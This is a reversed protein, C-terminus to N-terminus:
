SYKPCNTGLVEKTLPNIHLKRDGKKYDDAWSTFMGCKYKCPTFKKYTRGEHVITISEEMSPTPEAATIYGAPNEQKIKLMALIMDIKLEIRDIRGFIGEEKEM